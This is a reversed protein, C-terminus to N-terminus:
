DKVVKMVVLQSRKSSTSNGTTNLTSNDSDSISKTLLISKKLKGNGVIVRKSPSTNKAHQNIIPLEKSAWKRNADIFNNSLIENQEFSKSMSNINPFNTNTDGFSPIKSPSFEKVLVDIRSKIPSNTVSNDVEIKRVGAKISAFPKTSLLMKIRREREELAEQKSKKEQKIKKEEALKILIKERNYLQVMSDQHLMKGRDFMQKAVLERELKEKEEKEEKERALEAEIKLQQKRKDEEIKDKKIKAIAEQKERIKAEEIERERRIEDEIAKRADAIEKLRAAEIEDELRQLEEQALRVAEKELREIEKIAKEEELRIQREKAERNAKELFEAEIAAAKSRKEEAKKENEAVRKLRNEEILLQKEKQEEDALELAEKRKKAAKELMIRKKQEDPSEDEKKEESKKEEAEIKKSSEEKKKYEEKKELEEECQRKLIKEEEMKIIKEKEIRELNDVEEKKALNEEVLIKEDSDEVIEVDSTVYLLTPHNETYNVSENHSFFYLNESICTDGSNEKIMNMCRGILLNAVHINPHNNGCFFIKYLPISLKDLFEMAIKPKKHDMQLLAFYLFTNGISYIGGLNCSNNTTDNEMHNKITNFLNLFTDPNNSVMNITSDASIEFKTLILDISDLLEQAADDYNKLNRSCDGINSLIEALLFHCAGLRSSVIKLSHYLLTLAKKSQNSDRLILGRQYLSFAILPHSDDNFYKRRMEMSTDCLQLADKYYGPIRMSESMSYYINSLLIPHDSSVKNNLFLLCKDYQDKALKYKGEIRLIEGTIFQVFALMVNNSDLVHSITMEAESLLLTSEKLRGIECYIKALSIQSEAVNIDHLQKTTKLYKIRMDLAEEHLICSESFSGRESANKALCYLSLSVYRNYMEYYNFGRKFIDNAENYVILADNPFGKHQIIDAEHLLNLAVVHHKEGYQKKLLDISPTILHLADSYSGMNALIKAKTCNVLNIDDVKNRTHIDVSKNIYLLANSYNHQIDLVCALEYYISALIHDSDGLKNVIIEIAQDYYTPIVNFIGILRLTLCRCMILKAYIIEKKLDNKDCVIEGEKIYTFCSEFNGELRLISCQLIIIEVYIISMRNGLDGPFIDISKEEEHNISKPYLSSMFSLLTSIIYQDEKMINNLIETNVNTEKKFHNMEILKLFSDCIMINIENKDDININDNNNFDNKWTDLSSLLSTLNRVSLKDNVTIDKDICNKILKIFAVRSLEEEGHNFFNTANELLKSCDNLKKSIDTM